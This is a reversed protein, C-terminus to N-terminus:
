VINQWGRTGARAGHGDMGGSAMMGMHRNFAAPITVQITIALIIVGILIVVLNALFLKAGLQERIYKMLKVKKLAAEDEFRYGVGRVTAILLNTALNRVCMGLISM